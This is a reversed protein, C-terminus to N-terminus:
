ELKGNVVDRKLNEEKYEKRVNYDEGYELLIEILEENGREEEINEKKKGEYEKINIEVIEKEEMM